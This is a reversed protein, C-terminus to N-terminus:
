AATNRMLMFVTNDSKFSGGGPGTLHGTDSITYQKHGVTDLEVNAGIAYLYLLIAHM